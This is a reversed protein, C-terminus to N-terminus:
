EGDIKDQLENRDLTINYKTAFAQQATQFNSDLIGEQETIRTLIEQLKTLDEADFDPDFVLNLMILYENQFTNLYFDFLATAANRLDTNGEYEPLTRIKIVADQMEAGMALFYPEVSAYSATESAVQENFAILKEGIKNQLDVIYDNYAIPDTFTQSKAAFSTVLLLITLLKKM